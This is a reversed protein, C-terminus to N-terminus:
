RHKHKEGKDDIKKEKKRREKERKKKKKEKKSEEKGGNVITRMKVGEVQIQSRDKNKERRRSRSATQFLVLWRNCTGQNFVNVKFPSAQKHGSVNLCLLSVSDSSLSGADFRFQVGETLMSEGM